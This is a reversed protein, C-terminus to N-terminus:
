RSAQIEDRIADIAFTVASQIRQWGASWDAVPYALGLRQYADIALRQASHHQGAARIRRAADLVEVAARVREVGEDPLTDALFPVLRQLPHGGKGGPVGPVQLNKLVEAVASLRSDVEEASTATFALRASREVGAPVVLRQHYCLQWVADLYDISAPLTFPSVFGEDPAAVPPATYKSLRDLYDSVDSVGAFRRIVPALEITWNEPSSRNPQCHWTPPEKQMLDLLLGEGVGLEGARAVVEARAMEPRSESFPDLEVGDRFTGMAGVLRIFADVIAEAGTLRSLGAITLGVRSDPTPAGQRMLWVAGYSHTDRPLSALVAAADLDLREIKEEVYAWRPWQEYQLYVSGVLDILIQQEATPPPLSAGMIITM